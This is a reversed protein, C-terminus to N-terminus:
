PVMVGKSRKRFQAPTVGFERKFVRYFYSINGLGVELSVDVIPRDSHILLNAAYTLRQKNLYETPTCGLEKRFTRSLHEASTHALAQMHSVGQQLNAPDMLQLCLHHFWAPASEPAQAEEGTFFRGLLEAM